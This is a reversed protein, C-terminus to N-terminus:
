AMVVRRQEMLADWGELGCNAPLQDWIEANAHAYEDRARSFCDKCLLEELRDWSSQRWIALPHQTRYTPCHTLHSRVFALKATNCNTAVSCTSITTLFTNISITSRVHQPALLLCSQKNGGSLAEWAEGAEFFDRASYTGASYFAFPLLWTAGVEQFIPIAILDLAVDGDEYQVTNSKPHYRELAIPYVTELHLIARKFLYAVDYKHSLRLIGLVAYFDIEAPPPMFYNSDFIARLFQEVDAAKDYLYIVPKGDMIEAGTTDVPQPFEFMSQFVTSRAALISKSVCFLRDEARLVAPSDAPFWLGETTKLDGFSM